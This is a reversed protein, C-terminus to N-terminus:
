CGDRQLGKKHVLFMTIRTGDKSPYGIQEVELSAPDFAVSERWWVKREGTALDVQYVTQPENFSSYRLFAETGDPTTARDASGSGPLTLGGKPKGDLGFRENHSSAGKLDGGGLVGSALSLSQLAADKREPILGRWKKADPDNLDVAVVRKNPADL